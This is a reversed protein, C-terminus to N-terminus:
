ADPQVFEGHLLGVQWLGVMEANRKVVEHFWELVSSDKMGMVENKSWETLKLLSELNGHGGLPGDDEKEDNGNM